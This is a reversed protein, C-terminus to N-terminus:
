NINDAKRLAGIILEINNHLSCMLDALNPTVYEGVHVKMKEGAGDYADHVVHTFHTTGDAHHHPEREIRWPGRDREGDILRQLRDALEHPRINEGMGPAERAQKALRTSAVARRRAEKIEELSIEALIEEDSMALIREVEADAVRVCTPDKPDCREWM